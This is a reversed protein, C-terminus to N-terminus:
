LLRAQVLAFFWVFVRHDHLLLFLPEVVRHVVVAVGDVHIVVDYIMMWVDHITAV